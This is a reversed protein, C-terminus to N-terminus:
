MINRATPAELQNWFSRRRRAMISPHLSAQRFAPHEYPPPSDCVSVSPCTLSFEKTM